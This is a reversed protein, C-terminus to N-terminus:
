KTSVSGQKSKKFMQESRKFSEREKQIFYSGMLLLDKELMSFIFTVHRITKVCFGGDFVSTVQHNRADDFWM